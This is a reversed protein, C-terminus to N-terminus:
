QLENIKLEINFKKPEDSLILSFKELKAVLEEASYTGNLSLTMGNEKEKPMFEAITKVEKVVKPIDITLQEELKPAKEKIAAVKPTKNKPEKKNKFQRPEKQIGLRNVIRYFANHDIGWTEMILKNSHNERYKELYTKQKAEPLNEFEEYPAITDYMFYTRVKGTGQYDRKAKGKLLDSAFMVKGVYGRKGTRNHVGRATRKKDRVEEDFM